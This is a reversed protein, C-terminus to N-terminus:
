GLFVGERSANEIVLLLLSLQPTPESPGTLFITELIDKFVPLFAPVLANCGVSVVNLLVMLIILILLPINGFINDTKISCGEYKPWPKLYQIHLCKNTHAINFDTLSYVHRHNINGIIHYDQKGVTKSILTM